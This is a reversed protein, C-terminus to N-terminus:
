RTPASVASSTSVRRSRPCGAGSRTRTASDLPVESPIVVPEFTWVRRFTGPADAEALLMAAAGKSHGAAVLSPDGALGLHSAVALTDEGFREWAHGSPSRSSDGHSRFDFSWVHFGEAVLRTADPLPEAMM